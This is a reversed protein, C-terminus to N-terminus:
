LHYHFSININICCVFSVEGRCEKTVEHNDTRGKPSGPRSKSGLLNQVAVKHHSPKSVVLAEEEQLLKPGVPMPKCVHYGQMVLQTVHKCM